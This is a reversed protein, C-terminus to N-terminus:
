DKKRPTKRGIGAVTEEVHSTLTSERAKAGTKERYGGYATKTRADCREDKGAQIYREGFGTGGGQAWTVVKISLRGGGM